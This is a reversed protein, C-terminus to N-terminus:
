NKNVMQRFVTCERFAYIALLFLLFYNFISLTWFKLVPKLTCWLFAVEVYVLNKDHKKIKFSHMLSKELLYYNNTSM